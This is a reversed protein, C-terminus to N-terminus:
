QSTYTPVYTTLIRTLNDSIYEYINKKVINQM